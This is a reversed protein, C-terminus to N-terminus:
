RLARAIALFEDLSLEEARAGPDVGARALASAAQTPSGFESALTNRLTKRRQSFAAKVIRFLSERDIGEPPDGREIRVVVSDVKPVPYFANRSIRAAVRAEGFYRVLVSAQGYAKSGPGAALREGVERQTMVTMAGIQPAGELARLVLATAINYPLNGVLVDVDLAGLDVKLADGPVVDVNAYGELTESLVPLLRADIELAVVSGAAEALAVTLSGVGAGVEIVRNASSLGAIRVVKRITNPDIVFNQGLSKKPSVAHRELTEMVRRAGLLGSSM